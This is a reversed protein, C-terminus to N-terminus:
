LNRLVLAVETAGAKRAPVLGGVLVTFVVILLSGLVFELPLVVEMPLIGALSVLSEGIILYIFSFILGLFAGAFFTFVITGLFEEAVLLVVQRQTAGTSRMIAYETQRQRIMYSLFATLSVFSILAALVFVITALGSTGVLSFFGLQDKDAQDPSFVHIVEPLNKLTNVIEQHNADSEARALFLSSTEINLLNALVGENLVVLGGNQGIARHEGEFDDALGFGPFSHAKAVITFNYTQQIRGGLEFLTLQNGIDVDLYDALFENIIIGTADPSFLLRDMAYEATASVFTTEDWLAIKEFATPQIGLVTVSYQGVLGFTSYVHTAEKIGDINRLADVFTASVSRTRIKFDAGIVYDIQNETNVKITESNVVAFTGISFALILIMILPILQNVRRKLSKSVLLAQPGLFLRMRSSATPLVVGMLRSFIRSYATWLFLAGLFMALMWTSRGYQSSFTQRFAIVSFIVFLATLCAFAVSFALPSEFKLLSRVRRFRAHERRIADSIESSLFENIQWLSSLVALLGCFVGSVVWLELPSFSMQWLQELFLDVNVSLFSDSAPIMAAFIIGLAIGLTVGVFSIVLFEICLVIVLQISTAGRARLVGIESRRAQLVMQTTFNILFASLIILPLTMFFTYTFSASYQDLVSRVDDLELKVLTQPYKSRLRTELSEIAPEVSSFSLKSVYDRSIRAFLKPRYDNEELRDEVTVNLAEITANIAERHLFIGDGLTESNFSLETLSKRPIREYIGAIEYNTFHFRTLNALFQDFTTRKATVASFSLHSGVTLNLNLKEQLMQILTRSIVLKGVSLEFKGEVIFQDMITQIFDNELYFVTEEDTILINEQVSSDLFRVSDDYFESGFIAPSQYVQNAKDIATQNELWSEVQNLIHTEFLGPKPEVVIEFDKREFSDLIALKTSTENWVLLSTLMSSAIIFGLVLNLSRRKNKLLNTRALSLIAFILGLFIRVRSQRIDQNRRESIRKSGM